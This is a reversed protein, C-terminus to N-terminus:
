LNMEKKEYKVSKLFMDSYRSPLPRSLFEVTWSINEPAADLDPPNSESRHIYFELREYKQTKKTIIKGTQVKAHAVWIEKKHPVHGAPEYACRLCLYEPTETGEEDRGKVLRM